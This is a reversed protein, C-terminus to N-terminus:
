VSQANEGNVTCEKDYEFESKSSSAKGFIQFSMVELNAM